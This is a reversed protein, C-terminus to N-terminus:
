VKGDMRRQRAVWARLDSWHLDAEIAAVTLGGLVIGVGLATWNSRSPPLHTITLSPNSSVPTTTPLYTAPPSGLDAYATQICSLNTGWTAMEQSAGFFESANSTQLAQVLHPYRGDTLTAVTAQIGLQRTPYNQVGASNVETGAGFGPMTTNLPNNWQWSGDTTHPKECYSWAVLLNLNTATPTAHLGELIAQATQYFSADPTLSM